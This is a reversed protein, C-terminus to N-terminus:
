TAPGEYLTFCAVYADPRKKIVLTMAQNCSEMDPMRLLTAAPEGGILAIAFLFTIM